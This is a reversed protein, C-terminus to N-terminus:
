GIRGTEFYYRQSREYRNEQYYIFIDGSHIQNRYRRPYHYIKYPQDGEYPSATDIKQSLIIFM